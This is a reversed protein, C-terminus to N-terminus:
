SLGCTAAEAARFHTQWERLKAAKADASAGWVGNRTYRFAYDQVVALDDQADKSSCEPLKADGFANCLGGMMAHQVRMPITFKDGRFKAKSGWNHPEYGIHLAYRQYLGEPQGSADGQVDVMNYRRVTDTQMTLYVGVQCMWCYAKGKPDAILRELVLDFYCKGHPGHGADMWRLYESLTSPAYTVPQSIMAHHRYKGKATFFEASQKWHDYQFKTAVALMVRGQKDFLLDPTVPTHFVTDSDTTVVFDATSHMGLELYSVQNFIRGSLCPVDEFVFRYSQKTTQWNAPRFAEMADQDGQDLVILVDGLFSPWFLEISPYLMHLEDIAGCGARLYLDVRPPKPGWAERLSRQVADVVSEGSALTEPM